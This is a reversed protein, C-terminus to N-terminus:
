NNLIILVPILSLYTAVPEPVSQFTSDTSVWLFILKPHKIRPSCSNSYDLCVESGKIGDPKVEM